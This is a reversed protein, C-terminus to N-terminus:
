FIVTEADVEVSSPLHAVMSWYMAFKRAIDKMTNYSVPKAIFSCVGEDYARLIDAEQRSTSLMVVPINSLQSDIRMEHLVEFGNKRPMNIDLVVLRPRRANQFEGERRIFRLAQEGDQVEGIFEIMPFDSFAEKLLLTDDESDDVILVEIPGHSGKCFEEVIEDLTREPLSEANVATRPLEAVNAWYQSFRSILTRREKPSEPKCVFSSAGHNYTNLIDAQQTNDTVIVVPISRLESDGKLEALTELSRALSAEDSVGLSETDLLILSPTIQGPGRLAMLASHVDPVVQVVQILGTEEFADCLWRSESEDNEVLLIEIQKHTVVKNQVQAPSKTVALQIYRRLTVGCSLFRTSGAFM